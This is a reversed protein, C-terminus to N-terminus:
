YHPPPKQDSPPPDQAHQLDLLKGTLAAVRRQLARITEAQEAVVGSLDEGMREFHALRSELDRLRDETGSAM